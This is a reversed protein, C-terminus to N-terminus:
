NTVGKTSNLTEVEEKTKKNYETVLAHIRDTPVIVNGISMDHNLCDIITALYLSMDAEIFYPRSCLEESHYSLNTLIIYDILGNEYYEDFANLGKTFLGFTVCIFIRNAKRLKLEKCVELLSKGTDIMDDVVIVDKGEISDGLFTFEAYANEGTEHISHEYKKYFMGMNVGLVNAYYVARDMGGEDPTVIMLHESDLKLKIDNLLLAKIFQFPPTFNDFGALPIANVIRPDHADFTIINSVGMSVLEQLAVACDLSELNIRKDQRGGYLFPMIVNVRTAWPLAASVIRKLDQYHDDPSMRNENGSVTYRMSHNTIDVIVFIDTGRVSEKIIGKGEGSGFRVTENNTLYTDQAYGESLFFVNSNVLREKRIKVLHANVKEALSTCGKLAALKLPAVPILNKYLNDGSM